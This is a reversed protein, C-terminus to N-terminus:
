KLTAILKELAAIEAELEAVTEPNNFGELQLEIEEIRAKAQEKNM